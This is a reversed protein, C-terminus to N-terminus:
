PGPAPLSSAIATSTPDDTRAVYTYTQPDASWDKVPSWLPMLPIKLAMSADPIAAFSRQRTLEFGIGSQREQTKLIALDEVDWLLLLTLLLRLAKASYPRHLRKFCWSLQESAFDLVKVSQWCNLQPFYELRRSWSKVTMVLYPDVDVTQKKVGPNDICGLWAFQVWDM